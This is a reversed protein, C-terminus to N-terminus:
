YLEYLKCTGWGDGYSNVQDFQLDVMWIARYNAEPNGVASELRSDIFSEHDVGMDRFGFFVKINERNEIAQELIKIEIILDSAYHTCKAAEKILRDYIASMNLHCYENWGIGYQFEEKVLEEKNEVMAQLYKNM